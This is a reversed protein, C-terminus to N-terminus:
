RIHQKGAGGGQAGKPTNEVGLPPPPGGPGRKNETKQKEFRGGARWGSAARGEVSRSSILGFRSPWFAFGEVDLPLWEGNPAKERIEHVRIGHVRCRRDTVCTYFDELVDWRMRPLSAPATCM